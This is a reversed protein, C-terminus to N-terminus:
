PRRAAAGTRERQDSPIVRAGPIGSLDPGEFQPGEPPEPAAPKPRAAPRAAPAPAPARQAQPQAPAPAKGLPARGEIRAASSATRMRQAPPPGSRPPPVQPPSTHTVATPTVQGLPRPAPTAVSAKRTLSSPRPPLNPAGVAPAPRAAPRTPAPRAAGPAPRAATRPAAAKPNAHRPPLPTHHHQRAQGAAHGANGRAQPAATRVKVPAKPRPQRPVATVLPQLREKHLEAFTGLFRATLFTPLVALPGVIAIQLWVAHGLSSWFALAAPAFAVWYWGAVRPYGRCATIARVLLVPSLSTIDGRVQRLILAVPVVFMGLALGPLSSMLPMDFWLATVSPGVLVGLVMGFDLLYRKAGAIMEAPTPIPPLEQSGEVADLFIRRGMAGVVGLVCLGPIAALGAFLWVSGGATLFGGLGVVIPFALMTLLAVAPMNGQCLYQVADLVHERIEPADSNSLAFLPRAGGHQDPHLLGRRVLRSTVLEHAAGPKMSAHVRLAEDVHGLQLCIEVLDRLVEDSAMGREVARHLSAYRLEPTQDEQPTAINELQV